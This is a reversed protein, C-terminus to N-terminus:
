LDTYSPTNAKTKIAFIDMARKTGLINQFLILIMSMLYSSMEKTRSGSWLDVKLKLGTQVLTLYLHKGIDTAGVLHQCGKKCLAKQEYLKKAVIM